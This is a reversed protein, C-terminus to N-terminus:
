RGIGAEFAITRWPEEQCAHWPLRFDREDKPGCENFARQLAEMLRHEHM